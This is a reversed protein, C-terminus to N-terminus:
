RRLPCFLRQKDAGSPRRKKLFKDPPDRAVACPAFYPGDGLSAGGCAAAQPRRQYWTECPNERPALCPISM